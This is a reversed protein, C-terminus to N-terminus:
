AAKRSRWEESKEPAVLYRDVPWAAQPTGDDLWSDRRSATGLPHQVTFAFWGDHVLWRNVREVVLPLDEVYQLAMSSFVGDVSEAPFDVDEM